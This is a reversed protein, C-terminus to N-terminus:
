TGPDFQRWSVKGDHRKQTVSGKGQRGATKGTALGGSAPSLICTDTTTITNYKGIADLHSNYLKSM